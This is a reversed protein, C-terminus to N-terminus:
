AHHTPKSILSTISNLTTLAETGTCLQASRGQLVASLQDAVHWQYRSMGSPIVEPLESLRTYGKLRSDKAIPEWEIRAGGREYRLRGNAAVLEVTYYSFNEERAALFVARGREFTIDLDPEADGNHLIRGPEIVSSDRVSGLWYELLNLFHSGNHRLGKSYWVVGKLPAEILGCTIRRGVEIAGPESRRIYNAYLAVGKSACADVMEQATGFDESLPKECLIAKPRSNELIEMLVIQHYSTPVSITVVDAEHAVLAAGIDAYAPCAFTEVFVACNEANPDVGGVLEFEPHMAFARAHSYIYDDELLLDYGMGVQGLGIVVARIKGTSPTIM